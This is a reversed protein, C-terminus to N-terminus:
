QRSNELKQISSTAIAKMDDDAEDNDLIKKYYEVAKPDNGLEAYITALNFIILTDDPNANHALEMFEIAKTNDGSDFALVGKTNLAVYDDPFVAINLDLVKECGPEGYLNGEFEHIGELLIETVSDAPLVVNDTWTWRCNNKRNQELINIATSTLEDWREAVNCATAKGFRFDLRDPFREIGLDIVKIAENFLSDDITVESHISGAPGGISDLLIFSEGEPQTDDLVLMSSYARNFYLNFRAPYLEASASDSKQWRVLVSDAREYDGQELMDYFESEYNQACVAMGILACLLLLSKHM